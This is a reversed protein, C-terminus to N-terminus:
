YGDSMARNQDKKYLESYVFGRNKLKEKIEQPFPIERWFVGRADRELKQTGESEKQIWFIYDQIFQEKVDGKMKHQTFWQYYKGTLGEEMWYHQAKEKAVQWRLDAMAYLVATRLDKPFLPIAVRGRSTARNYKEFPEWCMGRDGYSPVLIVHPVIRNTQRKFSREFLGPDLAEIAAMEVIVNERTAIDAINARFYQQMLIPFHNGQRGVCLKIMQRVTNFEKMLGQSDVGISEGLQTAKEELEKLQRNAEDLENYFAAIEKDIQSLKKIIEAAENLDAKQSNTYFDKLGPYEQRMSHKSINEARTKLLAELTEMEAIKGKLLDLQVNSQGRAKELRTLLKQNEDRKVVKTEDTASSTVQGTAVKKLWEDLYHIPEDLNNDFIIKSLLDRQDQSILTPLLVGFRLLLIKPLSLPTCIRSVMNAALNWYAPILKNRYLSKEQPDKVKLFMTLLEHIKHAEDGEGSLVKKYFDKDNFFPKPAEERKTIRPFAKKTIAAKDTPAGEDKEEGFLDSFAPQDNADESEIEILDAIEPDIDGAFISQGEFKQNDSM